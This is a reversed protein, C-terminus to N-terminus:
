RCRFSVERGDSGERAFYGPHQVGTQRDTRNPDWWSHHQLMILEHM